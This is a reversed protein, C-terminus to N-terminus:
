LLRGQAGVPERVVWVIAARGSRTKRKRGSDFIDGRKALEHVRASATQHPMDLLMEVEDCTRGLMGGQAVVELVRRRLECTDISTFAARSTDLTTV